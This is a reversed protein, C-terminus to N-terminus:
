KREGTKELYLLQPSFELEHKSFSHVEVGPAGIQAVLWAAM